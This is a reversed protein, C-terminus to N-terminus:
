CSQFNTEEKYSLSQVKEHDSSEEALDVSRARCEAQSFIVWSVNQM